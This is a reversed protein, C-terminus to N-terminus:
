RARSVDWSWPGAEGSRGAFRGSVGHPTITGEFSAVQNGRRDRVIGSVRSGTVQGTITGTAFPAAGTLTIEGTFSNDDARQVQVNWRPTRTAASSFGGSAVGATDLAWSGGAAVHRLAQPALQMQAASVTALLLLAAALSARKCTNM